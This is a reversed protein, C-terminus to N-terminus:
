YHNSNVWALLSPHMGSFQWKHTCPTKELMRSYLVHQLYLNWSPLFRAECRTCDFLSFLRLGMFSAECSLSAPSLHSHKLCICVSNLFPHSSKLSSVLSIVHVVAKDSEIFSVAMCYLAAWFPRTVTSLESLVHDGVSPFPLGGWYEQRLFGMFLIFLCFYLVSFSSSGLNTPAWYAVSSSHLYLELFFSSNSGFCFCGGTTSMVPSPLLTWHQLSCYQMSVKFTLDM